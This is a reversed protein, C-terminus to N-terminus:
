TPSGPTRMISIRVARAWSTAARFCQSAAAPSAAPRASTSPQVAFLGALGAVLTIATAILWLSTMGQLPATASAKTIVLAALTAGLGAGFHHALHTNTQHTPLTPAAIHPNIFGALAAYRASQTILFLANLGVAIWAMLPGRMALLSTLSLWSLGLAGLWLLRPSYRRGLFTLGHPVALGLIAAILLVLAIHAESRGTNFVLFGSLVTLYASSVLALAATAVLAAPRPERAPSTEGSVSFRTRGFVLCAYAVPLLAFGARWDYTTAAWLGLPMGFAVIRASAPAAQRAAAGSIARHIAVYGLGAAAGAVLRGALLSEYGTSLAAPLAALSAIGALHRPDSPLVPLRRALLGGLVAAFPYAAVLTAIGTVGPQWLRAQQPGLPFVLLLALGHLGLLWAFRPDYNPASAHPSSV